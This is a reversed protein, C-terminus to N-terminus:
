CQFCFDTSAQVTLEFLCEFAWNNILIIEMKLAAQFDKLLLSCQLNLGHYASSGLFLVRLMIFM